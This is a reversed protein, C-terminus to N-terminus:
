DASSFTPIVAAQLQGWLAEVHRRETAEVGVSVRVMWRGDLVSATCYAAGSENISSVWALTHADLEEGDLRSGDAGSPRHRICVTQLQVPALLEWDPHDSIQQELWRANELDRRLRDQIAEVGDLRVHFWLKLARFRRGLPVGWDKYETPRNEATARNATDESGSQNQLYSPNTSMVRIVHTPDKFYLLSCDLITGMWKHPNWSVSDSGEVGDWLHRMEPLLMASGAMAADVHIWPRRELFQIQEVAEAIGSISDFATTGTTGCGAVIIAPQLGQALDAELVLGLQETDM